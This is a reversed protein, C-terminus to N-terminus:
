LQGLPKAFGASRPPGIHASPRGAQGTKQRATLIPRARCPLHVAARPGPHVPTSRSPAVVPKGQTKAPSFVSESSLPYARSSHEWGFLPLQRRSARDRRPAASECSEATNPRCGRRSRRGAFATPRRRNPSKSDCGTPRHAPGSRSAAPRAQPARPALTPGRPRDSEAGSPSLRNSPRPWRPPRRAPQTTTAERRGQRRRVRAQQQIGHGPRKM